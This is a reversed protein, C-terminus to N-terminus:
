ERPTEKESMGIYRERKRAKVSGRLGKWRLLGGVGDRVMSRSHSMRIQGDTAVVHVSKWSRILARKGGAELEPKRQLEGEIHSPATPASSPRRHGNTTAAVPVAGDGDPSAPPSASAASLRRGQEAEETSSRRRQQETEASQQQQQQQKEHEQQQEHALMERRRQEHEKEQEQLREIVAERQRQEEDLRAQTEPAHNDDAVPPTAHPEALATPSDSRSAPPFGIALYEKDDDDDDGEDEEPPPSPPGEPPTFAEPAEESLATDPESAADAAHPPAM